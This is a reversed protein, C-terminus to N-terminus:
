RRLSGSGTPRVETFFLTRDMACGHVWTVGFGGGSSVIDRDELCSGPTLTRASLHERHTVVWDLGDVIALHLETSSGNHDGAGYLVAITEDGSTERVAVLPRSTVEDAGLVVPAEQAPSASSDFLVVGRDLDWIAVLEGGNWRAVPPGYYTLIANEARYIEQTLGIPTGDSDFNSQFVLDPRTAQRDSWVLTYGSEHEVMGGGSDAHEVDNSVLVQPSLEVGVDDIRVFYWLYFYEQSRDDQWILAFGDERPVVTKLYAHIGVNQVAPTPESLLEGDAGVRRMWITKGRTTWFVRLEGNAWAMRSNQPIDEYSDYDPTVEVPESVRANEADIFRIRMFGHGNRNVQYLVVYQTGIWLLQHAGGQLFPDGAEPGAVLLPVTFVVGGDGVGGGDPDGGDLTPGTTHGSCGIGLGSAAVIFLITLRKM